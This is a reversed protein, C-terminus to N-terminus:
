GRVEYVTSRGLGTAAVIEAVTRGERMLAVARSKDKPKRGRYKGDTRAKAIGAKQRELMIEREFQAFAGLMNLALRGTPTSTDLGIALIRLRAGKADIREMIDLLNKMSRALRDLKTVVLTDGAKCAVIAAELRARERVSSVQERYITKCGAATLERIQAEFGAEQEVTSTRAYGINAM